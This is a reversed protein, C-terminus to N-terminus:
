ETTILRKRHSERMKQKAEETHGNKMPNDRLLRETTDPRKRGLKALSMKRKTEESHKKGRKAAAMKEKAEATHPDRKKGLRSASMRASTSEPSRSRSGERSCTKKEINYCLVQKDYLRDIYTQEVSLRTVKDGDVIELVFFEYADSGCKNFDHQLFPNGHKGRGLALEHSRWRDKFRVCSGIYFRGNTSNVLKYIGGKNSAGNYHFQM